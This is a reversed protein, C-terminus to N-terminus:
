QNSSISHEFHSRLTAVNTTLNFLDQARSRATGPSLEGGKIKETVSAIADALQQPNAPDVLMGADDGVIEPCGTLTTTVIPLDLALAELLVTPLADMNGDDDPVCALVMMSSDSCRKNVEEISLGGTFHVESDLQLTSTMQHLRAEEEGDGVITARFNVGDKKLIALATLLHDFGKKPVLRGVSIIEIPDTKPPEPSPEFFDLNIGNYLRIMKSADMGPTQELIYNRNFDSVTIAFASLDVLEKFLVRNVTERFIDKAHCTFSFPIGYLLNVLAAMRTSITAFHAHFHQVGLSRAEAGILVARLLMDLDKPIHHRHLFDIAEDWRALPPALDPALKWIKAWSSEPKERTLYRVALNLQSLNGHFRGDGPAMLSFVDVDVGQRELELVENLIFTESLRPFMKLLYAVHVRPEHESSTPNEM